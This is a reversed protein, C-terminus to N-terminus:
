PECRECGILKVEWRALERGNPMDHNLTRSITGDRVRIEDTTKVTKVKTKSIRETSYLAFRITACPEPTTVDVTYTNTTVLEKREVRTLESHVSAECRSAASVPSLAVAMTLAVAPAILVLKIRKTNIGIRRNPM